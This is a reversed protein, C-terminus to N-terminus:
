FWVVRPICRLGQSNDTACCGGRVCSAAHRALHKHPPSISHHRPVAFSVYPRSGRWRLPRPKVTALARVLTVAREAEAIKVDPGFETQFLRQAYKVLTSAKKPQKRAGQFVGIVAPMGQARITTL